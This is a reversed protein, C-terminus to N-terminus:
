NRMDFGWNLKENITKMFNSDPLFALKLNFPSKELTLEVDRGIIEFRSDLTCLYKEARGDIKFKIQVDDKVIIPRVNLNHPAIPTIVFNGCGPFVIPGGCSLSYGTSGTPTSVILGDAWYSNLFVGDIYTHITVMSSTVRKSLTFDNLAFPTNGFLGRPEKLLLLAREEIRYKNTGIIDLAEDFRLREVGSLFGLRGLNTGMIPINSDKVLRLASLITGDGGFTIVLDPREKQLADYTDCLSPIDMVGHFNLLDFIVKNVLLDFNLRSMRRVVEVIFHHDENKFHQGYLLLKM